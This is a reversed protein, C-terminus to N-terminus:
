YSVPATTRARLPELEIFLARDAVREWNRLDRSVALEIQNIRDFNTDPPPIAGFPNFIIFGFARYHDLQEAALQM